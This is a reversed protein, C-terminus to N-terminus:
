RLTRITRRAANAALRAKEFPLSLDAQTNCAEELTGCLQSLDSFGLFGAQSVIAHARRALDLRDITDPSEDRFTSQLENSLRTLWKRVEQSSMLTRFDQFGEEVFSSQVVPANKAPSGLANPSGLVRGVEWLLDNREIPKRVHGSMGAEEIAGIQELSVNGTMAIIPISLAPGGSNRIARTAAIGDVHPLQIDMLVLAFNTSQVAAVAKAADAVLEIQYGESHLFQRALERDADIHEAVLIRQHRILHIPAARNPM